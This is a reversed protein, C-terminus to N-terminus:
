GGPEDEDDLEEPELELEADDPEDDEPDDEDDLPPDLVLAAAPWASNVPDAPQLPQWVSAAADAVPV